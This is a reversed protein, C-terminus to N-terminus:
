KKAPKAPKAPTEVKAVTKVNPNDKALDAVYTAIAWRDDEPLAPFGVMATGPVGNTATNFIDERKSGQKFPDLHFNRPKPNLAAAAPGTADGKEGHCPACTTTFLGKGKEVLEPTVKPAGAWAPTAVALMLVALRNM